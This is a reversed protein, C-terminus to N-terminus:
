GVYTVSVLCACNICYKMRSNSALIFCWLTNAACLLYLILRYMCCLYRIIKHLLLQLSVPSNTYNVLSWVVSQLEAILEDDCEDKLQSLLAQLLTVILIGFNCLLSVGVQLLAAMCHVVDWQQAVMGKKLISICQKLYMADPCSKDKQCGQMGLHKVLTDITDTIPLTNGTTCGYLLEDVSTKGLM